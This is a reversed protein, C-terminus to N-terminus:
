EDKNGKKVIEALVGNVFKFSNDSSYKKALEVAENIAVKESVESMFKLEYTAVILIALDMKAVKDITYKYLSTKITEIILNYNDIIGKYTDQIFTKDEDDVESDYLYSNLSIENYFNLFGYEYVLKFVVERAQIRSM